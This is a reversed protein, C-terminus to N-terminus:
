HLHVAAAFHLLVLLVAPLLHWSCLLVLVAPWRAPLCRLFSSALPPPSFQPPRRRQRHPHRARRPLLPRPEVDHTAADGHEDGGAPLVIWLSEETEPGPRTIQLIETEEKRSKGKGSCIAARTVEFLHAQIKGSTIHGDLFDAREIRKPRRTGKKKM